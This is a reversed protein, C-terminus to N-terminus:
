APRGAGSHPSLEWSRLGAVSGPLPQHSTIVAAGGNEGIRFAGPERTGQRFQFNNWVESILPM